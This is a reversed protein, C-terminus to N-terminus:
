SVMCLHSAPPNQPLVVLDLSLRIPLALLSTRMLSAWQRRELRHLPSRQYSQRRECCHEARPLSECARQQRRPQGLQQTGSDRPPPLNIRSSPAPEQLAPLEQLRRQPLPLQLKLLQDRGALGAPPRPPLMSGQLPAAPASEPAASIAVGHQVDACAEPQDIDSILLPVAGPHQALRLGSWPAVLPAPVPGQMAAAPGTTTASPSTGRRPTEDGFGPPAANNEIERSGAPAAAAAATASPPATQLPASDTATAAIGQAESCVKGGGVKPTQAATRKGDAGGDDAHDAVSLHQASPARHRAAGPEPVPQTGRRM